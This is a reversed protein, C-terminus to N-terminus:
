SQTDKPKGVAFSEGNGLFALNGFKPAPPNPGLLSGPVLWRTQLIGTLVLRRVIYATTGAPAQTWDIAEYVRQVDDPYKDSADPM